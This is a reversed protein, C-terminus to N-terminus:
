SSSSGPGLPASQTADQRSVLMTRIRARSVEGRYDIQAAVKGDLGWIETQGTASDPYGDM